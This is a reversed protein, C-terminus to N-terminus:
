LELDKVKTVNKLGSKCTLYSVWTTLILVSVVNTALTMIRGINITDPSVKAELFQPFHFELSPFALTSNQCTKHILEAGNESADICLM